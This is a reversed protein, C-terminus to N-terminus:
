SKLDSVLDIAKNFNNFASIAAAVEIAAVIEDDTVGAALAASVQEAANPELPNIWYFPYLHEKGSCFDMLLELRENNTCVPYKRSFGQPPLSFIMAHTIGSDQLRQEFLGRDSELTRMHIHCDFM